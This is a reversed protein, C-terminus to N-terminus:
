INLEDPFLNANQDNNEESDLSSANQDEDSFDDEDTPVVVDGLTNQVENLHINILREKKEAHDMSKNFLTDVANAVVVSTTSEMAKKEKSVLTDDNNFDDFDVHAPLNDLNIKVSRESRTGISKTEDLEVKEAEKVKDDIQSDKGALSKMVRRAYYGKYAAKILTAARNAEETTVGTKRYLRIASRAAVRWDILGELLEREKERRQKYSRYANQIIKAADEGVGPPINAENIIDSVVNAEEVEDVYEDPNYVIPCERLHKKFTKQIISVIGKVEDKSLGTNKLFDCTTNTIETISQVLRTAVRTNERTIILADLYDAIFSYLNVPHNRLVERSIDSMLEKLGDPVIYIHKACHRQLMVDM